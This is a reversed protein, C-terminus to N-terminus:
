CASFEALHPFAKILHAWRVAPSPSGDLGVRIVPKGPREEDVVVWGTAKQIEAIAREQEASDQALLAPRFVVFFGFALLTLHM